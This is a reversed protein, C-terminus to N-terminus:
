RDGLFDLNGNPGVQVPSTDPTPTFAPRLGGRARSNGAGLPMGGPLQTALPQTLPRLLADYDQRATVITSPKMTKGFGAALRIALNLYVAEVAALPLGSDQQLDSDGPSIALPYGLRVGKADWTAMMSDLRRLGTQLEEPDLEFVYGALALEAFAERM